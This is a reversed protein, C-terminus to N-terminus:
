RTYVKWKIRSLLGRIEMCRALSVNLEKVIPNSTLAAYYESKLHPGNKEIWSYKFADVCEYLTKRAKLSCIDAREIMGELENEELEFAEKVDDLSLHNAAEVIEDLKQQSITEKM